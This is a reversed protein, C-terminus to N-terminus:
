SQTDRINLSALTLFSPKGLAAVVRSAIARFGPELRVRSDIHSLLYQRCFTELQQLRKLTTEVDPGCCLVGHNRMLYANVDPAVTRELKKALWGTGSPAYGVMPISRGLSKSLEPDKVTMPKGLLTCASALPQHTHLSCMVDPRHRLVRAHLSSEVTPTADGSLQALDSIRVTCVQAATMKHYDTASPTVAMHDADIRLALNGGTAAFFGLKSLHQSLKVIREQVTEM